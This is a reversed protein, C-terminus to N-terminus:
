TKIIKLAVWYAPYVPGNGQQFHTKLVTEGGQTFNPLNFTYEGDGAGWTTGIADFLAAYEIRSLASGDCSLWGSPVTGGAFDILTGRNAGCLRREIRRRAM